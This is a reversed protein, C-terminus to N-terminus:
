TKAEAKKMKIYEPMAAEAQDLTLEGGLHRNYPHMFDPSSGCNPCAQAGKRGFNGQSAGRAVWLYRQRCIQDPKKPRRKVGFCQVVRYDSM